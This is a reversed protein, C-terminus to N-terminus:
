LQPRCGADYIDFYWIHFISINSPVDGWSQKGLVTSRLFMNLSDIELRRFGKAYACAKNPRYKQFTGAQELHITM